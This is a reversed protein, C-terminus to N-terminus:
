EAKPPEIFILSKLMLSFTSQFNIENKTNLNYKIELIPSASGPGSARSLFVVLGNKSTAAESGGILSGTFSQAQASTDATVTTAWALPSLSDPNEYITFSIFEGTASSALVERDSQNASTALWSSPYVFSYGFTKNTFTNVLSSSALKASSGRTPDFGGAVETGDLFGDEDSDPKEPDTGYMREEADTLLDTDSDQGAGSSEPASATVDPTSSVAQLLSPDPTPESSTASEPTQTSLEAELSTSAGSDLVSATSSESGTFAPLPIPATSSTTNGSANLDAPSMTEPQQKAGLFFYAAGGISALVFLSGVAIAAPLAFSKKAARRFKEPMVVVAPEALPNSAPPVPPPIAAKQTLLDEELLDFM